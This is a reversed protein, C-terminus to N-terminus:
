EGVREAIEDFRPPTVPHGLCCCAWDAFYRDERVWRHFSSYPWAHPCSVHGHKVPNYHIYDMHNAFDRDDRITHEWFRRQWICSERHRRRSPSQSVNACPFDHTKVTVARTFNVKIMGIRKSYNTDGPPLEWLFHVHDPLIVAALITFPLDRKVNAVAARFAVVNGDTGLIPRRLHTVWTLFFTGGPAFMRHYEPM